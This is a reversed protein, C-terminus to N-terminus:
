AGHDGYAGVYLAPGQAVRDNCEGIAATIRLIDGDICFVAHCYRLADAHEIGGTQGFGVERHPAVHEDTGSQFGAFSEQHMATGAADARRSARM